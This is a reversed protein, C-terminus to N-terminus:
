KLQKGTRILGEIVNRLNNVKEIIMKKTYNEKSSDKKGGFSENKFSKEM